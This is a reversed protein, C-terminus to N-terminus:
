VIISRPSCCRASRTRSASARDHHYSHKQSCSTCTPPSLVVDVRWHIRHFFSTEFEPLPQKLYIYLHHIYLSSLHSRLTMFIGYRSRFSTSLSASTTTNGSQATRSATWTLASVFIDVARRRVFCDEERRAAPVQRGDEWEREDEIVKTIVTRIPHHTVDPRWGMAGVTDYVISKGSREDSRPEVDYERGRMGLHCRTELAYGAQSCPSLAGNCTGMAIPDANHYVHTVPAADM